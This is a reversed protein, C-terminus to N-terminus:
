WTQAPVTPDAIRPRSHRSSVFRDLFRDPLAPTAGACSCVYRAIEAAFSHAEDLDKQHLLGLVLAATFADGAGVTDVVQVPKAAQESWRGREYILSGEAGRTLVVARMGFAKALWEMQQNPSEGLEFMQALVPLESDNLKLVNALQLSREIVEHSYFRQRLNVDFIRLADAPAAAVLRQIAERSVPSRQALSGFCVADAARAAKLAAQTAVLQDWAVNEHIIFHPVGNGTFTVAVTGTPAVEDVQVKDEELGMKRFREIIERGFHDNGVRTIVQAPAGLAQAHYAFNAPAGGLQPGSPLLDWLAEGIGIVKFSM